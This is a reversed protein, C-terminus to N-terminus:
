TASASSTTRAVGSGPRWARCATRCRSVLRRQRRDAAVDRGAARRGGVHRRPDAHPRRRPGARRADRRLLQGARDARGADAGLPRPAQAHPGLVPPDGEGALPREALVAEAAAVTTPTARPACSGRASSPNTSASISSSTTSSAPPPSCGPRPAPPSWSTPRRRSRNRRGTCPSGPRASAATSRSASTSTACSTATSSAAPAPHPRSRHRRRPPGVRGGPRASPNAGPRRVLQAAGRRRRTGLRRGAAGQRGRGAHRVRRRPRPARPAQRRPPHARRHRPARRPAAGGAALGGLGPRRRPPDRRMGAGARLRRRGGHRQGRRDVDARLPRQRGRDRQADRQHVQLLQGQPRAVFGGADPHQRRRLVDQRPGGTLVVAKVEPHEFRLRQVADYLEIDVALDYSNLKLEYDGRLGADPTVAMSLTAVPGDFELRWHRYASPQTRFSIPVRTMRGCRRRRSSGRRDFRVLVREGDVGATTSPSSRRRRPSRRTRTRRLPGAAAREGVGGPEAGRHVPRQAGLEDVPETDDGEVEAAM